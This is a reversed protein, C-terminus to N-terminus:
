NTILLDEPIDTLFRSPLNHNHQGFLILFLKKMARTIGVYCLRREEELEQHDFLSRSHPLLGEEMGTIFVVPFETGKAAHLTMLTIKNHPKDNFIKEKPLYEQEMLAINELFENIDPFKQAVSKLEKINELRSISEEDEKKFKNLYTTQTFIKDLLFATQRSSPSTNKQIKQIQTFIKKGIKQIRELSASDQPNNIFRLFSLIDKIERREYFRVGGILNYAVNYHLLTEELIRSQANTRYLIAFDKKQYHKNAILTIVKETVFKAEDQENQAQYLYIKDGAKKQTWLHLIPHSSNKLIIHYATNLINQTSRYNQELNITTLNPFDKQLRLVNRFDAGRFSYISQATDGVVCLNQSRKTLLRTLLYQAHNTDQYEDVFIYQYKQQYKGLIESQEQFLKVTYSLLDDFDLANAKKLEKQYSLYIEAVLEQFSGQAYQPYELAPILENKAQSITSLITSPRYSNEIQKSKIIKKIARIQDASDWIVYNKPINIKEGDMRLVRACFSHFTGAFPIPSNSQGLITILRQRMEQAAKNTFTICLINQPNIKKEQILYAVRHTIVRTKGSGAGALILLPGNGFTVAKKQQPNLSDLIPNSM